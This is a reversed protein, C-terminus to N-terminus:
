SKFWDMQWTEPLAVDMETVGQAGEPNGLDFTSLFDFDGTTLQALPSEGFTGFGSDDGFGMGMAHAAQAFTQAQDLDPKTEKDSGRRGLISADPLSILSKLKETVAALDVDQTQFGEIRKELAGLIWRVGSWYTAQKSLGNQLTTINTTAVSTLLARSLEHQKTSSDNAGNPGPLSASARRPSASPSPM